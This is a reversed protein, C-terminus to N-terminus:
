KEEKLKLVLTTTEIEKRRKLSAKRTELKVLKQAEKLNVSYISSSISSKSKHSRTRRKGTTANESWLKCKASMFFFIWSGDKFECSVVYHSKVLDGIKEKSNVDQYSNNLYCWFNNLIRSGSQIIGELRKMIREKKEELIIRQIFTVTQKM